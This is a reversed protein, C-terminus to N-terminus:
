SHKIELKACSLVFEEVHKKDSSSYGLMILSTITVDTMTITLYPISAAGVSKAMTVVASDIHDGDIYRKLLIPSITDLEKLFCIEKTESPPTHLGVPRKNLWSVSLLKTEGQHHAANSEGKIGDLKLFALYNM